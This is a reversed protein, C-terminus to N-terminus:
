VIILSKYLRCNKKSGTGGTSPHASLIMDGAEYAIKILFEQIEELEKEGLMKHQSESSLVLSM